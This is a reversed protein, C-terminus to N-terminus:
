ARRTKLKGEESNEMDAVEHHLLESDEYMSAAVIPISATINNGVPTVISPNRTKAAVHISVNIGRTKSNIWSRHQNPTQHPFRPQIQPQTQPAIAATVPQKAWELPCRGVTALRATLHRTKQM